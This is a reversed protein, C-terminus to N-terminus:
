WVTPYARDRWVNHFLMGLFMIVTCCIYTSVVNFLLGEVSYADSNYFSILAVSIAGSPPNLIGFKALGGICISAALARQLWVDQYKEFINIIAISVAMAWTHAMYVIRPQGLPAAPLAFVIASLAGFSTPIFFLNEEGHFSFVDNIHDFLVQLVAIAVFAGFFAMGVYKNELPPPLTSKGGQWKKFYRKLWPVAKEVLLRNSLPRKPKPANEEPVNEEIELKYIEGTESVISVVSVKSVKRELEINNHSISRSRGYEQRSVSAVLAARKEHLLYNPGMSGVLTELYGQIPDLETPEYTLYLVVVGIFDPSGERKPIIVPITCALKFINAFHVLRSGGSDFFGDLIIMRLNYVEPIRKTKCVGPLGVGDTYSSGIGSQVLEESVGPLNSSYDLCSESYKLENDAMIFSEGYCKLTSCPVKLMLHLFEASNSVFEDGEPVGLTVNADQSSFM